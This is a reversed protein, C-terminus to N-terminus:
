NNTAGATIESLEQTIAAQRSKNYALTLDDKLEMANDSANKMAVMRASHESANSELILHYIVMEVLHQTLDDIIKKHAGTKSTPEIIYEYNNKEKKIDKNKEAYRGYEPVIERIDKNISDYSIPLLDRVLVDQKLTTRFNTSITIVKTWKKDLFGQIVFDTFEKTKEPEAYDGFKVFVKEVIIKKRALYEEAKKGITAYSANTNKYNLFFEEFKRFVNSNFSGALGKDATVLIILIKEEGEQKEMLRPIYPIRASLERLLELGAIAYPRSNIAVLQAKRMKNAAVMEMAKTIQSTNAVAKIRRKISQISEM